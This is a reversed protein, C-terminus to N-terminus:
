QNSCTSEKLNPCPSVVSSSLQTVTYIVNIKINLTWDHNSHLIRVSESSKWVAQLHKMNNVMSKM